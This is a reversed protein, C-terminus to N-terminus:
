QRWFIAYPDEVIANFKEQISLSPEDGPVMLWGGASGRFLLHWANDKFDMLALPIRLPQPKTPHPKKEILLVRLGKIEIDVALTPLRKLFDSSALEVQKRVFHPLANADSM